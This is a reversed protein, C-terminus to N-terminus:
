LLKQSTPFLQMNLTYVRDPKKDEETLKMITKRLQQVESKVKKYTEESLTLSVVSMDREKASISDLAEQANNLMAKHYQKLFFSKVEDGTTIVPDVLTFGLHGGKKIFGLELLLEISKRAESETITPTVKKALAKYNGNFKYVKLINRICVYYWESFLSLCQTDIKKLKLKQLSVMTNFYHKKDDSNKARTFYVLAEFYRKENKTHKLLKSIKPVQAHTLNKRGAMVNSIFGSSTANIEHNVLKLTFGPENKRMIEFIDKLYEQYDLYNFISEM